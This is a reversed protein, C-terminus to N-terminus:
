GHKTAKMKWKKSLYMDLKEGKLQRHGNQVPAAIREVAQLLRYTRTPIDTYPFTSQFKWLLIDGIYTGNKRAEVKAEGLM